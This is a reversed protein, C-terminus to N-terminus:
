TNIFLITISLKIKRYFNIVELYFYFFPDFLRLNSSDFWDYKILGM